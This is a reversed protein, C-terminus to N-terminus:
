SFSPSTIQHTVEKKREKMERKTNIGGGGEFFYPRDLDMM